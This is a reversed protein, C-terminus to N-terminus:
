ASGKAESTAPIVVSVGYRGKRKSEYMAADAHAIFADPDLAENTWAIGLSAQLDVRAEGLDVSGLLAAGIREAIREAQEASDVRPCIVLFEDGGLRGIDDGNRVVGRLRDAAAVLLRDGAAHGYQDNVAKFHDLDIFVLAIGQGSDTSTSTARALLDLAAGRNLCKTLQDISARVELEHRLLARETVDSLCGVAGSVVGAADTLARLSLLCVRDSAPAGRRAPTHLRIEIDDVPQDALVASIAAELIPRDEPVVASMESGITAAPRHEAIAHLRDNAFIIRRTTDIQFLGVPLAESLRSLLQERALNKAIEQEAMKQLTVDRVLLCVTDPRGIESAIPAVRGEFWRVGAKVDLTYEFIEPSGTDLVQNIVTILRQSLEAGIQDRISRGILSERPATLLAEDTTWVGHYIGERDLEFVLDDLSSLLAQLRAETARTLNARTM